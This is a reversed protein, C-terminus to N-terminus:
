EGSPNRIDRRAQEVADQVKPSTKIPDLQINPKLELWRRFYDRAAGTNGYAVACYGCYEIVSAREDNGLRPEGLLHELERCADDYFGDAYSKIAIHMRKNPSDEETVPADAAPTPPLLAISPVPASAPSVSALAPIGVDEKAAAPPRATTQLQVATPTPAATATTVSDRQRKPEDRDFIPM